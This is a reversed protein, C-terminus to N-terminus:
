RTGVFDRLYSCTNVAEEFFRTNSYTTKLPEFYGGGLAAQQSYKAFAADYDKYDPFADYSPIPIQKQKCKALM